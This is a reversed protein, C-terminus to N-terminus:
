SDNEDGDEGELPERKLHDNEKFQGTKFGWLVFGVSICAMLISGITYILLDVNV